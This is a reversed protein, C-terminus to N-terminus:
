AKNPRNGRLLATHETHRDRMCLCDVRTGQLGGDVVQALLDLVLRLVALLQLAAPDALLRLQHRQLHAPPLTCPPSDILLRGAQAELLLLEEADVHGHLVCPLCDKVALVAPISRGPQNSSPTGPGSFLALEECGGNAVAELAPQNVPLDLVVGQRLGQGALLRLHRHQALLTRAHLLGQLCLGLVALGKLNRGLAQLHTDATARCFILMGGGHMFATPPQEGLMILSRFGLCLGTATFSFCVCVCKRRRDM